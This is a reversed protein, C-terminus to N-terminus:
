KIKSLSSQGGKSTIEEVLKVADKKYYVKRPFFGAPFDNTKPQKTLKVLWM